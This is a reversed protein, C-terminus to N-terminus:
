VVILGQMHVERGLKYTGKQSSLPIYHCKDNVGLLPKLSRILHKLETKTLYCEYLSKQSSIAFEKLLAAAQRRSKGCAIDYMFVFGKRAM